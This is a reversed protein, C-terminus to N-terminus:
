WTFELNNAAIGPNGHTRWEVIRFTGSITMELTQAEEGIDAPTVAHLAVQQGDADLGVLEAAEGVDFWPYLAFGHVDVPTLTGPEVFSFLAVAGEEDPEFFLHGRESGWLMMIPDVHDPAADFRIGLSLWQDALTTGEAVEQGTQPDTTLDLLVTGVMTSSGGDATGTDDGTPSGSDDGPSCAALAAALFLIRAM